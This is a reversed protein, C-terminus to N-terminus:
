RRRSWCRSGDNSTPPAFASTPMPCAIANSSSSARHPATVEGAAKAQTLARDRAAAYEIRDRTQGYTYKQGWESWCQRKRELPISHEEDLRYCHEFRVDAEYLSHYPVRCMGGCNGSTGWSVRLGDM